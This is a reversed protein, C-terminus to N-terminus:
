VIGALVDAVLTKLIVGDASEVEAPMRVYIPPLPETMAIGLAVLWSLLERVGSGSGSIGPRPVYWSRVAWLHRDISTSGTSVRLIWNAHLEVVGCPYMCTLLEDELEAVSM